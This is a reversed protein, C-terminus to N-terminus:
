SEMLAHIRESVSGIRSVRMGFNEGVKVAQGYGIPYGAVELILESDFPMDFEIITGVTIELISEITMVRDALRVTLPVSLKLIRGVDQSRPVVPTPAAQAQTAANEEDSESPFMADIGAQSLSM